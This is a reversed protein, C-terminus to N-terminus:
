RRQRISEILTAAPPESTVSACGTILLRHSRGTAIRSRGFPPRHKTCLARYKPKSAVSAQQLHKPREAVRAHDRIWRSRSPVLPTKDRSKPNTKSFICASSRLTLPRDGATATLSCPRCVINPAHLPPRLTSRGRRMEEVWNARCSARRPSTSNGLSVGDLRQGTELM